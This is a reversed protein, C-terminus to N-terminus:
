QKCLIRSVAAHSVAVLVAVKRVVKAVVKHVGRVAAKRVAKAAARAVDKIVVRSVVLAVRTVTFVRVKRRATPAIATLSAIRTSIPVGRPLVVPTRAQQRSIWVTRQWCTAYQM